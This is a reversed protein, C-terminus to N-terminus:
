RGDTPAAANRHSARGRRAFLLAGGATRSSVALYRAPRTAANRGRTETLTVDAPIRLIQPLSGPTARRPRPSRCPHRRQHSHGLLPPCCFHLPLNARERCRSSQDRRHGASLCEGLLLATNEPLVHDVARGAHRDVLFRGDDGLPRHHRHEVVEHQEVLVDRLVAEGVDHGLEGGVPRPVLVAGLQDEMQTLPDFPMVALREGGGVDFAGPVQYLALAGLPQADVRALGPVGVEGLDDGVAIVLHREDQLPRLRRKDRQEGGAHRRDIRAVDRRRLHALMRDARAREFEDLELGVLEDLQDLVRIVPLRAQGIEVRDLVRDQAVARGRDEGKDGALVLQGEGARQGNRQGVVQLLLPGVRYALQRGPLTLVLRIM